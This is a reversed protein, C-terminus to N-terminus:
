IRRAGKGQGGVGARAEEAGAQRAGPRHVQGARRRVRPRARGRRRRVVEAPAPQKDAVVSSRRRRRRSQQTKTKPKPKTTTTSLFACDDDSSFFEFLLQGRRTHLPLQLCSASPPKREGSAAGAAGPRQRLPPLPANIKTQQPIPFFFSSQFKEFFFFHSSCALSLFFIM